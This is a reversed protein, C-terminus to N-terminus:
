LKEELQRAEDPTLAREPDLLLLVGDPLRAVGQLHDWAEGPSEGAQLACEPIDVTDGVRDVQLAVLRVRTRLFILHDGVPLPREPLGFRRRLSIVPTIQGHYSIIGSVVGPGGPLPTVAVMRTVREVPALPLAYVTAEIGFLLARTTTETNM